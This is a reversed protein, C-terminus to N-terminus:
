LHIEVFIGNGIAFFHGFNCLDFRFCIIKIFIFRSTLELVLLKLMTPRKKAVM